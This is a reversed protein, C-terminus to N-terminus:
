AQPSREPWAGSPDVFPPTADGTPQEVPENQMPRASDDIGPGLDTLSTIEPALDFEADFRPLSAVFRLPRAGAPRIADLARLQTAPDQKAWQPDGMLELPALVELDRRTQRILWVGLAVLAIGVVALGVVMAYVLRSSGPDTAGIQAPMAAGLAIPSPISGLLLASVVTRNHWAAPREAGIM